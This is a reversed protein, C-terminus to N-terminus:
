HDAVPELVLLFADPSEKGETWGNASIDWILTACIGAWRTLKGTAWLLCVNFQVTLDPEVFTPITDSSFCFHSDAPTPHYVSGPSTPTVLSM